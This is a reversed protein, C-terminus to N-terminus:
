VGRHLWCPGVESWQAFRCSCVGTYNWWAFSQFGRADFFDQVGHRNLFHLFSVASNDIEVLAQDGVGDVAGEYCGLLGVSLTDFLEGVADHTGELAFEAVAYRADLLDLVGDDLDELAGAIWLYGALVLTVALLLGLEAAKAM